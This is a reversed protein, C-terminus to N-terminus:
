GPGNHGGSKPPAKANPVQATGNPTEIHAGDTIGFKSLDVDHGTIKKLEGIRKEASDGYTPEEGSMRDFAKELTLQTGEAFTSAIYLDTINALAGLTKGGVVGNQKPSDDRLGLATQFQKIASNLEATPRDTDAGSYLRKGNVEVERLAMEVLHTTGKVAAAQKKADTIKEDGM